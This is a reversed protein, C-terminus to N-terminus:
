RKWKIIKRSKSASLKRKSFVRNRNKILNRINKRSVFLLFALAMAAYVIHLPDIYLRDPDKVVELKVNKSIKPLFGIGSGAGTLQHVTYGIGFLNNNKIYKPATVNFEIRVSSQPPLTYEEKFGIAKMFTSDYTVKVDIEDKEPNQLRISYIASTEETLILRNKELFDSAVSLAEVGSILLLSSLILFLALIIFRM